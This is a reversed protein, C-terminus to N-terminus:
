GRARRDQLSFELTVKTKILDFYELLDKKGKLRKKKEKKGQKQKKPESDIPIDEEM